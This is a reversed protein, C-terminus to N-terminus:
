TLDVAWQMTRYAKPLSKALNPPESKHGDYRVIRRAGVQKGWRVLHQFLAVVEYDYQASRSYSFVERITQRTTLPERELMALVAANGTGFFGFDNTSGWANAWAQLTGQSPNDFDAQILPFLWPAYNLLYGPGIRHVTVPPRVIEPAPEPVEATAVTAFQRRQVASM